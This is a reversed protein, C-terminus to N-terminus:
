KNLNYSLTRQQGCMIKEWNCAWRFYVTFQSGFSICGANGTDMRYRGRPVFDCDLEHRSGRHTSTVISIGNVAMMNTTAMSSDESETLPTMMSVYGGSFGGSSPDSFGRDEWEPGRTQIALNYSGLEDDDSSVVVFATKRTHRFIEDEDEPIVISWGYESHISNGYAM